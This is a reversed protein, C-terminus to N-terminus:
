LILLYELKKIQEWKKGVDTSIVQRHQGQMLSWVAASTDSSPWLM